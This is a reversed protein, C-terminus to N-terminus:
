QKVDWMNPHKEISKNSYEIKNNCNPCKFDLDILDYWDGDILVVPEACGNTAIKCNNECLM